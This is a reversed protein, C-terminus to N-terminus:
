CIRPNRWIDGKQGSPYALCARWGRCMSTRAWAVRMDNEIVARALAEVFHSKGTGSPGAVALNEHWGVWELTALADQTAESISSDEPRWSSFRSRFLM